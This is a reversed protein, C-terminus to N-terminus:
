ESRLAEVPDLKAAIGSPILGAIMTLVVSITVLLVCAIPEIFAVLATLGTLAHVILTIPICLLLSIGIGILGATLGVIMTEANFVLSIDRKSAGISRLVGIEKTRELVSIYTIIGIMISSVVLSVSVFVILAYSIANIIDTIGSMLLAVYDTYTIQDAEPVTSNYEVILEAIRDKDEFTTSYINILSPKNKDVAGIKDLNDSYTSPSTKSPMYEDYYLALTSEDCLAIHKDFADAVKAYGAEGGASMQAYMEIAANEAVKDVAADLAKDDLGRLYNSATIAPLSTNQTWDSMVYFMKAERTTLNATINEKLLKMEDDNPVSMIDDIQSEAQSLKSQKVMEAMQGAIMDYLEDDSYSKIYSEISAYDDGYNAAIMGELKERTDYQSMYADVSEDLEDQSMYSLIQTYIETKQANDISEFYSKIETAKYENTPDVAESIVFPLGTLVDFNENKPDIQANYVASNKNRDIVYETLATTYGFSGTMATAISKENPRVVGVIKLEMASRLVMDLLEEDDRINDFIGDNNNDTYYDTNALLRFTINCVEEYDLRRTTFDIEEQKMAAAIIDIIEDDEVLGLAYFALDTIENNRDLILVIEDASEPWKGHLLDYQEYLLDSVLAGNQGPLMEDWLSFTTFSSSMSSYMGEGMMPMDSSGAMAMFSDTMDTNVYKGEANKVYTNLKANYSYQVSSIYNSASEEGEEALKAELFEKFAGLNNENVETNFLSNMMSYIISNSYVADLEHPEAMVGDDTNGAMGMASVMSSLDTHESELTIPYSSLTDRQIGDIYANIGTSMALILAIGIIGISGAFSTLLTRARKSMLNNFSLSLATFFSMSKLNKKGKEDVQKESKGDYPATDSIVEGDLLSVIRTSYEEALERNHTVMIVLRDRAVEKLIDMVQVSTTSDLAGTPEDALLIDPNNVLARAIAVRQMQGGSMQNPRKHLQDGLGVKELAAAARKRREAKSVGSLTLALEVNRLVSQHPILNYSQFVFGISHNRYTDWDGDGFEKTSRGNIVLDGSTYRDLGGIINLMTTKGCGSPGLISVFECDRFALSVGRLADVTSDGAAYQKVIKKLELM